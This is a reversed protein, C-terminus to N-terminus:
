WYLWRCPRGRGSGRVGRFKMVPYPLTVYYELTIMLTKVVWEKGMTKADYLM